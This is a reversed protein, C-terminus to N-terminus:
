VYSCVPSQRSSRVKRIDWLFSRDDEQERVLTPWHKLEQVHRQEAETCAKVFELEAAQNNSQNGGYSAATSSAFSAKGKLKVTDGMTTWDARSGPRKEVPEAEDDGFDLEDEEAADEDLNFWCMKVPDFVMSGVVRVGGLGATTASGPTGRSTAPSMLGPYQTILAPRTSSAMVHDFAQLDGENGEWKMTLPNWLMDGEVLLRM